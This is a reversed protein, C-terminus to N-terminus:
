KWKEVYLCGTKHWPIKILEVWVLTVKFSPVESSSNDESSQDTQQTKEQNIISAPSDLGSNTKGGSFAGSNPLFVPQVTWPFCALLCHEGMIETETVAEKNTGQSRTKKKQHVTIWLDFVYIRMTFQKQGTNKKWLLM